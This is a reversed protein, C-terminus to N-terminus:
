YDIGAKVELLRGIHKREFFMEKNALIIVAVFVSLVVTELSKTVQTMAIQEQLFNIVFHIIVCAFISRRSKVYVWTLFFDLPLASVFFNVMYWFDMQLINSQYTGPIFFLPLHWLSWLIGFIISENFWTHYFAISDEAYGRWGLEEMFATLILTFLTPMGGISFSFGGVFSFQDASEGFLLSVLISIVIVACFIVISLLLNPLNVRYFGCIKEKYDRKLAPSNSKLVMVLALVSPVFLGMIMFFLALGNGSDTRSIFAAAFWFIWTFLYVYVFFRVPRYKYSDM